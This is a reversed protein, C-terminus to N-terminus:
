AEVVETGKTAGIRTRHRMGDRGVRIGISNQEAADNKLRQKKEISEASDGGKSNTRQHM